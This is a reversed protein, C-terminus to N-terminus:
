VTLWVCVSTLTILMDNTDMEQHPPSVTARAALRWSEPVDALFCCRREGSRRFLEVQRHDVEVMMRMKRKWYALLWRCAM